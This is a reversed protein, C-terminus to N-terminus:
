RQNLGMGALVKAKDSFDGIIRKSPLPSLKILTPTALIKEKEALAPQRLVDIVTIEYGDPCEEDWIRRLNAIAQM